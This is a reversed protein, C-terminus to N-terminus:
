CEGKQANGQLVSVTNNEDSDNTLFVLLLYFYKLARALDLVSSQVSYKTKM